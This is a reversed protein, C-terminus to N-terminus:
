SGSVLRHAVRKEVTPGTGFTQVMGLVRRVAPDTHCRPISRNRATRFM